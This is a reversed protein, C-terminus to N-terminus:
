SSARSSRGASSLRRQMAQRHLHFLRGLAHFAQLTPQDVESNEPLRHYRLILQSVACTSQRAGQQDDGPREKNIAYSVTNRLIM